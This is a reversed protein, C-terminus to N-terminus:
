TLVPLVLFILWRYKKEASYVVLVFGLVLWFLFSVSILKLTLKLNQSIKYEAPCSYQQSMKGATGTTM